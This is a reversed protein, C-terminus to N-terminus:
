RDLASFHPLDTILADQAPASLPTSTNASTTTNRPKTWLNQQRPEAFFQQPHWCRPLHQRLQAPTNQQSLQQLLHERQPTPVASLLQRAPKFYLNHDLPLVLNSGTNRYKLNRTVVRCYPTEPSPPYLANVIAFEYRETAKDSGTPIFVLGYGQPFIGTIILLQTVIDAQYLGQRVGARLMLAVKPLAEYVFRQRGPLVVSAYAQPVKLLQGVTDTSIQAQSLWMAIRQIRQQHLQTDILDPDAGRPVAPQMGQQLFALSANLSAQQLQLRADADLARAPDTDPNPARQLIAQVVPHLLGIDQLIVAMVLPIQVQERFPCNPVDLSSLGQQRNKARVVAHQVIYPDHLMGQALLRDLLRLALVAKYVTKFKQQAAVNSDQQTPAMLQLHGLLRSSKHVTEAASRGESLQLIHDACYVFHQWTQQQQQLQSALHQQLQQKKQRLAPGIDGHQHTPLVRIKHQLADIDQQLQVRLQSAADADYFFLKAQQALSISQRGSGHLANIFKLLQASFIRDTRASSPLVAM